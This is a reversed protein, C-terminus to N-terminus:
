EYWETQSDIRLNIYGYLMSKDTKINIACARPYIVALSENVLLGFDFYYRAKLLANSPITFRVKMKKVETLIQLSAAASTIVTQNTDKILLYFLNPTTGKYNLLCDVIIDEHGNIEHTNPNNFVKVNTLNCVLHSDTSLTRKIKNLDEENLEPIDEAHTRIGTLHEHYRITAEGPAGCFATKSQNLFLIRDTLGSISNPDHSVILITAGRQKLRKIEAMAAQQFYIDGVSLIEDFLYIDADIHIILSFALRMYMGSSYHKVPTHLFDPFGFLTTIQEIKGAIEAKSLGYIYGSLFINEYGSLDPQFGIGIELISATKGWVDICGESPPTIGSILKLLTSKGSGNPGIIGMVEGKHIAMSIDQLAYFTDKHQKKFLSKLFDAGGGRNRLYQKSVGTVKIALSEGTM